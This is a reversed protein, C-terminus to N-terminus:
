NRAASNTLTSSLFDGHGYDKWETQAFDAALRAMRKWPANSIREYSRPM